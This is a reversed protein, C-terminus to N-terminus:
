RHHKVIEGDAMKVTIYTPYGRNNNNISIFIQDVVEMAKKHGKECERCKEKSNYSTNCLECIYLKQEKM